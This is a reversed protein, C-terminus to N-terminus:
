VQTPGREGQKRFAVVMYTHSVEWQDESVVGVKMRELLTLNRGSEAAFFDCFNRSEELVLGCRSAIETLTPLPVLYEQCNEVAEALSFTYSLGFPHSSPFRKSAYCDDFTVSYISNGFHLGDAERLRRVSDLSSSYPLPSTPSPPPSIGIWLFSALCRISFALHM